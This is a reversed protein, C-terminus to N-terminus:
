NSEAASKLHGLWAALSGDLMSQMTAADAEVPEGAFSENTEVHVGTPTETFLWEHIGTIGQATGGWLSRSRDKVDYITSTVPFDYSIWDFSTGPEFAGEIRAETIEKQWEPWAAVDTHLEWVRELPAEIDIEHHALVPASRDVDTPDSPMRAEKANGSRIM